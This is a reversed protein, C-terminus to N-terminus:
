HATSMGIPGVSSRPITEDTTRDSRGARRRFLGRVVPDFLDPHGVLDTTSSTRLVPTLTVGYPADWKGGGSFGWSRLRSRGMEASDVWWDAEGYKRILNATSFVVGDVSPGLGRPDQIWPRM